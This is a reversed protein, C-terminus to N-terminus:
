PCHFSFLPLDHLKHRDGAGGQFYICLIPANLPFSPSPLTLRHFIVNHPALNCRTQLTAQPIFTEEELVLKHYKALPIGSHHWTKGLPSAEGSLLAGQFHQQAASGGTLEWQCTFAVRGWPKLLM